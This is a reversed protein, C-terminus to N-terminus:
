SPGKEIVQPCPSYYDRGLEKTESSGDHHRITLWSRVVIGDQGPFVTKQQGPPLDPNYRYITHAKIKKLTNHHWTVQPPLQQGYLGMCLTHGYTKAWLLVPGASNNRFRFDYSGYYVTADQGPPVYPVTMSHNHRSVVQLNSLTVVNYLVSAIKCVGGGITTIVTSGSYTPGKKYGKGETYPGLAMNQSFVEGPQVVTGALTDAAHSVNFLEGPLPDRLTATFYAMRIHTGAGAAAKQFEPTKEWPPTKDWPVPKNQSEANQGAAAQCPVASIFPAVAAAPVAATLVALLVALAHLFSIKKM